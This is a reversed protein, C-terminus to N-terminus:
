LPLLLYVMGALALPLARWWCWGLAAPLTLRPRDALLRALAAVMVTYVALQIGLALPGLAALPLAACLLLPPLARRVRRALRHLSAAPPTMNTEPGDAVLAREPGFPGIACAAPLALLGGALLAVVGPVQIPAVSDIQSLAGYVLWLVCRGATGIQAERIAARAALQGARLGAILPLLSASELALLVTVLAPTGHPPAIVPWPLFAVFIVSAALGIAAAVGDISRVGQAPRALAVAEGSVLLGFLWALAPVLALALLTAAIM